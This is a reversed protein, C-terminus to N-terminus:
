SGRPVNLELSSFSPLSVKQRMWIRSGNSSTAWAALWIGPSEPNLPGERGWLSSGQSARAGAEVDYIRDADTLVPLAQPDSSRKGIEPHCVGSSIRFDQTDSPNRAAQHYCCAEVCWFKLPSSGTWAGFGFILGALGPAQMVLLLQDLLRLISSSFRVGFKGCPGANSPRETWHLTRVSASRQTM